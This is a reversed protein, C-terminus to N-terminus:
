QTSRLFPAVVYSPGLIGLFALVIVLFPLLMFMKVTVPLTQEVIESLNQPYSLKQGPSPSLKLAMFLACM